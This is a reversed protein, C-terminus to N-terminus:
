DAGMPMVNIGSAELKQRIARVLDVAGPTDGHVCLTQAELEIETGDIAKVRGEAM